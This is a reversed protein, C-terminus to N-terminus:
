DAFQDITTQGREPPFMEFIKINRQKPIAGTTHPTIFIFQKKEHQQASQLLLDISIKRAVGDLFVDFEDMARIPCEMTEWLALLLSVTSFSKEGGSLQMTDTTQGSITRQDTQIDISLTQEEHNFKLKGAFGKQSLFANFCHQTRKAVSKRLRSWRQRRDLLNREIENAFSQQRNISNSIDQLKENSKTYEAHIEEFPRHQAEREKIRENYGSIKANLKPITRDNVDMEIRECINSATDIKAQVSPIITEKESQRQELRESITKLNSQFNQKYQDYKEQINRINNIEKDLTDVKKRIEADEKKLEILQKELPDLSISIEEEQAKFAEINELNIEIKKEYNRIEELYMEQNVPEVEPIIKDEESRILGKLTNIRRMIGNKENKLKALERRFPEVSAKVNNVQNKLERVEAESEQIWRSIQRIRKETSAALIRAEGYDNTFFVDAGNKCFYRNGERDYCEKINPDTHSNKNFLLDEIEQRHPLIVKSEIGANDILVNMVMPHDVNIVDKITIYQSSPLKNQPIDYVEHKFRQVIIFPPRQIKLHRFLKALTERDTHNDVIFTQLFNKLNAEVATAWEEAGDALSISLGIPGIPMKEFADKHANLQRLIHPIDPSISSARNSGQNQISKQERRNKQLKRELHKINSEIDRIESTAESMQSEKSRIDSVILDIEKKRGELEQQYEHVKSETQTNQNRTLREEEELAKRLENESKRKFDNYAKNRKNLSEIKDTIRRMSRIGEKKQRIVESSREALAENRAILMREEEKFKPLNEVKSGHIEDLKILKQRAKEAKSELLEIEHAIRELEHEELIAYAWLLKNECNRLKDRINYTNRVEDLERNLENVKAQMNPILRGKREITDNMTLLHETIMDFDDRMQELQTAQLFFKYKDKAKSTALFQRATDQMLISCPNSIQTNFQELILNLDNRKKSVTRGRYDKLTYSSSGSSTIRRVVTISRGYEEYQWAESGKNCLTISISASNCGNKVLGGM